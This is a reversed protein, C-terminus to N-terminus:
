FLTDQVALQDPRHDGLDVEIGFLRGIDAVFRAEDGPRSLVAMRGCMAEITVHHAGLNLEAPYRLLRDFMHRESGATTGPFCWLDKTAEVVDADPSQALLSHVDGVLRDVREVLVADDLPSAMGAVKRKAAVSQSLGLKETVLDELRRVAFGNDVTAVAVVRWAGQELWRTHKRGGTSTGVKVSGDRFGALYLVNAQDLHNVVAQDLETRDRTHAHHLSAALTADAM